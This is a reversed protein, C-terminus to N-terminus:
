PNRRGRLVFQRAVGDESWTITVVVDAYSTGLTETWRRTFAGTAVGRENINLDSGSTSAAVQTRLQELKDQALVVAESTHRTYSSARVEALYVGLLGMVAVATLMLAVMIEVMTFGRERATVPTVRV